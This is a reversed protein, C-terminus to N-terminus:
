ILKDLNPEQASSWEWGDGAVVLGKWEARIDFLLAHWWNISNYPESHAGKTGGIM